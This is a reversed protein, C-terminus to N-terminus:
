RDARARIAVSWVWWALPIQLPLRAWPIWPAVGPFKEAHLAMYWNAPWVAVLLAILGWGAVRRAGPLLLGIGGMLEAVGSWAVVPAPPLPPPVIRAYIEPKVFHMVGAGIWFLGLLWVPWRLTAERRRISRSTM